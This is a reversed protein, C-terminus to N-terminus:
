QGTASQVQAIVKQVEPPVYADQYFRDIKATLRTQQLWDNFAATQKQQLASADLPRNQEHGLLQIIHVGFTTTIPDSIQNIGLSFAADEFTKDMVGRPFWGLDGGIDKTATDTSFQAALAGFDEGKKLDDEIQLTETYTQVLIHRAHIQEATTPVQDAFVQLLKRRLLVGEIIKRFDTESIHSNNALNDLFKKKEDQFGQLTLPTSTPGPTETPGETPTLTPTTPTIGRSDSPVGTPTPLPTRTPAPTPTLTPTSTDTPTPSPGETPTPTARAYGFEREIEQDIEDVSATIGRKAAEQRILQDDILNELETRPLSLIQSASNSIQQQLYSTLFSTNPDNGIQQLNSQASNLQNLLSGAQYRINAQYDRVSIAAGNVTAIPNNLKAINDQYYFFVSLLLIFLAVGGLALYLIREQRQERARRVQQKRTEQPARKGEKPM